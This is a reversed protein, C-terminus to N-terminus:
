SLKAMYDQRTSFCKVDSHIGITHTTAEKWSTYTGPFHGLRVAYFLSPPSAAASRPKLCHCQLSRITLPDAEPTSSLAHFHATQQRTAWISDIRNVLHKSLTLPCHWEPAIMMYRPPVIKNPSLQKNDRHVVVYLAIHAVNRCWTNRVFASYLLGVILVVMLFIISKARNLM